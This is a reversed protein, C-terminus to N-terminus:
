RPQAVADRQRGFSHPFVFKIRFGKECEYDRLLQFMDAFEARYLEKNDKSMAM